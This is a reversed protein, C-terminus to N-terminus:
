RTPRKYGAPLHEKLKREVLDLCDECCECNAVFEAFIVALQAAMVDTPEDLRMADVAMFNNLPEGEVPVFPPPTPVFDDRIDVRNLVFGDDDDPRYEDVEFVPWGTSAMGYLRVAAFRCNDADPTVMRVAAARAAAETSFSRERIGTGTNDFTVRASGAPFGPLVKWPRNGTRSM